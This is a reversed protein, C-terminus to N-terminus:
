GWLVLEADQHYPLLKHHPYVRIGYSYFGTDEVTYEATYNLIGSERKDSLNLPIILPADILTANDNKTLVLQVQLEQSSLKGSFLLVKVQIKGDPRIKNDKIGNILVTKIKVTNFRAAINTKWEALVKLDTYNNQILMASRKAAPNYLEEFYDKVMRYTGFQYAVYSMAAKMKAIWQQSLGLNDKAYYMPIIENELTNLLFNNEMENRRTPDPSDFDKIAWGAEPKDSYAEAWWGDKISCNLAGNIAAKMGSTGCAEYEIIPTNLWVDAGQVLAKALDMDYNQLFIIRGQYVPDRLLEITQAVLKQGLGDAPHAKGAFLLVVPRKENTLLKAIREKNLLILDHRKYTAFRRAFGIVLTDKTLARLASNILTEEEDRLIYENAVRKQVLELLKTKQVQHSEWVNGDPISEIREWVAKDSQSSLWNETLYNDYLLKVMPGIWTQIHVGNTIGKIPIENELFGPWLGQWMKCAVKKHLHSVANAGCTFNLALPTMSFAKSTDGPATALDLLNKLPQGLLKMPKEMYKCILEEAFIENGAPVSTHTTFVSSARVLEFAEQMELGQNLLLKLRILLLLGSHGENLHYVSPTIKLNEVIFRAGAMGLVMEQLFRYERSGGYLRSTLQRDDANNEPVDTDLLYLSNRGIKVEWVAVFLKRELIELYVLIPKGSADCMQHMPLQNPNETPYNAVQEGQLNIGQVFYGQKYFLGVALFPIDLDSMEKLYDGALIGLGGSYIPITKDIGYELCFYAVPHDANIVSYDCFSQKLKTNCYNNFLSIVQKYKHMYNTDAVKKSLASNSVMNLMKVPNHQAKEWLNPDIEQFLQTVNHNNWSWWVNYALDRLGILQNPLECEFQFSRFKPTSSCVDHISTVYQEDEIGFKAYYVENFEIAQNYADVYDQYFYKWDALQALRETKKRAEEKLQPPQHAEVGLRDRLDAVMTAQDKNRAELVFVANDHDEQLNKVWAGFGALDTTITPTGYAISELPTYGWPEYISAFISLDCAAMIHEYPLDFVGDGGDLYCDSYVIHIKKKDKTFGLERSLKLIPDNYPDYVRHTAIGLANSQGNRPATNEDDLLSDQKTRHNAAALFFTVIKPSSEALKDDLQALSKLLTDFGKNHFEYRGATMWLLSDDPFNENTVRRAIDLLKQRITKIEIKRTLDRAQIKEINLGNLVTKDPYKALMIYAEEATISSVTTFCSAERACAREMSHKAYVGYNKAEIDPDFTDPLCYIDKYNGVLSRGLVTAHTTFVTPINSTNLKLYLIGAGCMWEHFHAIAKTKTALIEESIHQIVEGCLTSFLVPEIYEYNSALSDVGYSAWFRYFLDDTDYRNQQPAILIVQPSGETDWYGAKFVINKETLLKSVKDLFPSSSEVFHKNRELLPGILLYNSDFNKIAEQLKSRLVTYIGGVKNCVEWSVEFLFIDKNETSMNNKEKTKKRNPIAYIL